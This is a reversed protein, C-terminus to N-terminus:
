YQLQVKLIIGDNTVNRKLWFEYEYPEMAFCWMSYVAVMSTSHAQTQVVPMTYTFARGHQFTSSTLYPKEEFAFCNRNDHADDLIPGCRGDCCPDSTATTNMISVM